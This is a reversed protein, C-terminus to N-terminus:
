TKLNGEYMSELQRTMTSATFKTEYVERAGASLKKRLAPDDMLACIKEAMAAPDREPVLFGNKGDTVMYPNGGFTTAICPVGLSMGESLALSSTETGISCNLNVDMLAYYPAVDDVFGTFCVHDAVGLSIAQAELEARCSGDGVLLFRVNPHDRLVIAATELLYRHGKYPELRASIGCVFDNQFIGLRDRLANVEEASAARMPEVGNIIVHIKRADVGTDTLNKKAAEAVAVIDTALTNNVLGNIQKGPFTTLIRPPDFACHRTYFRKKVHCQWAALKGSFSSHTHVIDPQFKRIMARLEAVAKRDFSRDRGNHMEWVPYGEAEVLPKLAANEPLVVVIDFQSRDFNHLYNILLRGAGGINSDTLIHMVKQM